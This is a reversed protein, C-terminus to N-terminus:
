QTNDGKRFYTPSSDGQLAEALPRGCAKRM